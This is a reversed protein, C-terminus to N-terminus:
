WSSRSPPAAAPTMAPSRAWWPACSARPTSATTRTSASTRPTWPARCWTSRSAASTWPVVPRCTTPRLRTARPTMSARPSRWWTPTPPPTTPCTRWGPLCWAALLCSSPSPSFRWSALPAPSALAPSMPRQTCTRGVPESGWSSTGGQLLDTHDIQSMITHSWRGRRQSRGTVAAEGRSLRARRAAGPATALPNAGCTRRM